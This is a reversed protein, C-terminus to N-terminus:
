GPKQLVCQFALQCAKVIRYVSGFKDIAGATKVMTLSSKPIRNRKLFKDIAAILVTDLDRDVAVAVQGIHARGHSIVLRLHRDDVVRITLVNDM